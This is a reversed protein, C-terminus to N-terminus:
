AASAPTLAAQIEAILAQLAPSDKGILATITSVVDTGPSKVATIIDMIIALIQPLNTGVIPILTEIAQLITSWPLAGELDSITTGSVPASTALLRLANAHPHITLASM